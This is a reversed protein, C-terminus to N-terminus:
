EWPPRCAEQREQHSICNQEVTEALLGLQFQIDQILSICLLQLKQYLHEHNAKQLEQLDQRQQKIAKTAVLTMKDCEGIWEM